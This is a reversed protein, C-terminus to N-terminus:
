TAGLILKHQYRAQRPNYEFRIGVVRFKVASQNAGSDSIQVVDFLEQGCNPPILIVGRKGMLRMKSLIASAVDGAQATTPIAPDPQFDLREGVLAVEDTNVATGYVPNGYQDKGIIYARNVEPTETAYQGDLIIHWVYKLLTPSGISIQQVISQPMIMGLIGVWPTGVSISQIISSPSLIQPYRLVPMGVAVVQVISSPQIILASTIIVEPTGYSVPQSIGSPSLVLVGWGALLGHFSGSTYGSGAPNPFADAFAIPVKYRMTGSANNYIAAGQTDLKVALWYYTDKTLSTSTISITDWGAVVANSGTSVLLSGPEGSSDAYIAVKVNGSVRAKVKIESVNGTQEVVFRTLVLMDAAHDSSGSDDSAAGILKGTAM